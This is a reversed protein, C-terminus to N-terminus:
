ASTQFQWHQTDSWASWNLELCNPRCCCIGSVWVPETGIRRFAL